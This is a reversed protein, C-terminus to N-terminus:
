YKCSLIYSVLTSGRVSSEELPLGRAKGAFILSPQFHFATAFV